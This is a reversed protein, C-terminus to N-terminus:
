YILSAIQLCLYCSRVNSGNFPFIGEPCVMYLQPTDVTRRSQGISQQFLLERLLERLMEMGRYLVLLGVAPLYPGTNFGGSQQLTMIQSRYYLM